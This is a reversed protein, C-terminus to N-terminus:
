IRDIIGDLAIRIDGPAKRLYEQLEFYTNNKHSFHTLYAKKPKLTEIIKIADDVNNHSNSNIWNGFTADVVLLGIEQTYLFEKTEKPLCKTDTLIALSDGNKDSIFYGYTTVDHNLPIPVVKYNGIIIPQFPDEIYTLKFGLPQKKIEPDVNDKPSFLRLDNVSWRLSYLGATHDHHWHTLLVAKLPINDIVKTLDWGVDILLNDKGNQGILLFSTQRRQLFKFTRAESCVPCDCSYAPIGESAGTGLFWLYM